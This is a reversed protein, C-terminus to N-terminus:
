EVLAIRNNIAAWHMCTINESDRVGVDFGKEEVLKQVQKGYIELVEHFVCATQGLYEYIFFSLGKAAFYSFLVEPLMGRQSLQFIDLQVPAAPQSTIPGTPMPPPPPM